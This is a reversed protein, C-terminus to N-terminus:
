SISGKCHPHKREIHECLYQPTNYFRLDHAIGHPQIRKCRQQKQIQAKLDASDCTHDQRHGDAHQKQIQILEPGKIGQDVTHLRQKM